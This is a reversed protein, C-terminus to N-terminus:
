SRAKARKARYGDERQQHVFRYRVISAALLPQKRSRAGFIKRVVTGHCGIEGPAEGSIAVPLTLAIEVDSQPDLVRVARFLVGSASINVTTGECWDKDGKERYKMPLEIAFRQARKILGRKNKTRHHDAM